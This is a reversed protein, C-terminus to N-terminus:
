RVMTMLIDLTDVITSFYRASAEYSRQYRMLNAAEEDLSVGSQQQRFQELQTVVQARTASSSQAGRVDSGVRYVLGAWAESATATGGSMVRSERLGVPAM